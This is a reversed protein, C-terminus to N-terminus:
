FSVLKELYEWAIGPFMKKLWEETSVKRAELLEYAGDRVVFGEKTAEVLSSEGKPLVGYEFLWVEAGAAAKFIDELTPEREPCEEPRDHEIMYRAPIGYFILEDWLSAPLQITAAWEDLTDSKNWAEVAEAVAKRAVELDFAFMM